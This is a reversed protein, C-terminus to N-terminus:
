MSSDSGDIKVKSGFATLPLFSKAETGGCVLGSGAELWAHAAWQGDRRAVGIHLLSPVGRRRLMMRAAVAQVLCSSRWPLLRRVRRIMWGVEAVNLDEPPECAQVPPSLVVPSNGVLWRFPLWLALRALTLAVLTEIVLLVRSVRM